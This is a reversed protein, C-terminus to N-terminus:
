KNIMKKTDLVVGNATLKYIHLGSAFDVSSITISGSRQSIDLPVNKVMSGNMSYFSIVASTTGEPLSYNIQASGNVPNPINQSLYETETFVDENGTAEASRSTTLETSVNTKTSANLKELAEVKTQLEKIAELLVPILGTYNVAYIGEASEEVLEPFVEKVEQAIFGFEKKYVEAKTKNLSSLAAQADEKKIKGQAVMTAVEEANRNASVVQKEYSKGNLKKLKNLYSNKNDSINAINRKLERDSTILLGSTTWVQGNVELAYTTPKRGIGIKGTQDIFLKYNGWNSLPYPRWFNLGNEVSEIGFNPGVFLQPTSGVNAWDSPKQGVFLHSDQYFLQAKVSSISLMVTIVAFAAFRFNQVKHKM